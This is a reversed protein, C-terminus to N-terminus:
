VITPTIPSRDITGKSGGVGVCLCMSWKTKFLQQYLQHSQYYQDIIGKIGGASKTKFLQQYLQHSQYYQDTTGKIGRGGLM